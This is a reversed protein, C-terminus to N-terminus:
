LLDTAGHRDRAEEDTEQEVCTEKTDERLLNEMYDVTKIESASESIDALRESSKRWRQRERQHGVQDRVDRVETEDSVRTEM